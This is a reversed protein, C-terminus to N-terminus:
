YKEPNWRSNSEILPILIPIWKLQKGYLYGSTRKSSYWFWSLPNLSCFNIMKCNQLHSIRCSSWQVLILNDVPTHKKTTSRPYFYNKQWKQSESIANRAEHDRTGGDELALPIVKRQSRNGQWLERNRVENLIPKEM